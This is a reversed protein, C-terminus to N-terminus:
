LLLHVQFWWRTLHGNLECRNQDVWDGKVSVIDLIIKHLPATCSFMWAWCGWCYSTFSVGFQAAAHQLQLSLVAYRGIVHITITLFSLLRLSFSVRHCISPILTLYALRSSPLHSRFSLKVVRLAPINLMMCYLDLFISYICYLNLRCAFWSFKVMQKEFCM